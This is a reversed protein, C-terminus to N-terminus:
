RNQGTLYKKIQESVANSLYDPVIYQREFDYINVTEKNTDDNCYYPVM